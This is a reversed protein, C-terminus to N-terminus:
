YYHQDFDLLVAIGPTQHGSHHDLRLRHCLLSSAQGAQLGVAVGAHQHEVAVVIGVAIGQILTIEGRGMGQQTLPSHQPILREGPTFALPRPLEDTLQAQRVGGQGLRQQVVNLLAGTQLTHKHPKLVQGQLM